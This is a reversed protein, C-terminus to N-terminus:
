TPSPCPTSTGTPSPSPAVPNDPPAGGEGPCPTSTPSASPSPSTSPTTSPSPSPSPSTSPSQTPSPSPSDAPATRASPSPSSAPSAGAARSAGPSASQSRCRAPSTLGAPGSQSGVCPALTPASSGPARGPATSSAPAPGAIAPHSNSGGPSPGGGFNQLILAATTGIVKDPLPALTVASATGFAAIILVGASCLAPALWSGHVWGPLGQQAALRQRLVELRQGLWALAPELWARLAQLAALVRWAVAEWTAVLWAIVLPRPRTLRARINELGDGPHFSDAADRLARSLVEEFDGDGTNM